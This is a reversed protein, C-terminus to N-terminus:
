HKLKPRIRLAELSTSAFVGIFVDNKEEVESYGTGLRIGWAGHRTSRQLRLNNEVRDQNDYPVEISARFFLNDDIEKMWELRAADNYALFSLHYHRFEFGLYPNNISLGIRLKYSGKKTLEHMPTYLDSERRHNFDLGISKNSSLYREFYNKIRLIVPLESAFDRATKRGASLILGVSDDRDFSDETRFSMIADSYKNLINEELLSLSKHNLKVSETLFDRRASIALPVRFDSTHENERLNPAVYMSTTSHPIIATSFPITQACAQIINLCVAGFITINKLTQMFLHKM